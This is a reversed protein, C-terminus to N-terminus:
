PCRCSRRRRMDRSAVLVDDADRLMRGQKVRDRRDDRREDDDRGAEGISQVDARTGLRSKTVSGVM